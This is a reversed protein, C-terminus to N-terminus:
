RVAGGWSSASGSRRPREGAGTVHVLFPLHLPSLFLVLAITLVYAMPPRQLREGTRADPASPAEARHAPHSTPQVRLCLRNGARHFCLANVYSPNTRHRATDVGLPLIHAAGHRGRRSSYAWPQCCLGRKPWRSSTAGSPTCVAQSCSSRCRSCVSSSHTRTATSSWGGLGDSGFLMATFLFLLLTPVGFRYGWKSIVISAFILEAGLFFINEPTLTM